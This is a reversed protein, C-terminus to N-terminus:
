AQGQGQGQGKEAALHRTWGPSTVFGQTVRPALAATGAAEWSLSDAATKRMAQLPLGPPTKTSSEAASSQTQRNDVAHAASTGPGALGWTSAMDMGDTMVSTGAASGAANGVAEHSISQMDPELLDPMTPPPIVSSLRFDAKAKGKAQVQGKSSGPVPSLAWGHQQGHVSSTSSGLVLLNSVAAVKSASRGKAWGPKLTGGGRVRSTIDTRAASAAAAAAGAARTIGNSAAGGAATSRDLSKSVSEDPLM